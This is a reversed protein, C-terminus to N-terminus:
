SRVPSPLIRIAAAYCLMAVAAALAMGLSASDHQHKLFVVGNVAAGIIALLGLASLVTIARHGAFIARILLDVAAVLLLIGLVAHLALLAGNSFAEGFGGEHPTIYISVASGLAFQLILMVLLGMSAGRLRRIARDRDKGTLQETPGTSTM